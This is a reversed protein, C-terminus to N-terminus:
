HELDWNQVSVEVAFPDGLGNGHDSGGATWQTLQYSRGLLCKSLLATRLKGFGFGGAKEENVDGM